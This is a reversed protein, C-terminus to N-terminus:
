ALTELMHVSRNVKQKLISGKIRCAINMMIISDDYSKNYPDWNQSFLTGFSISSGKEKGPKM